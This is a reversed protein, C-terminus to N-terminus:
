PMQGGESRPHCSSHLVQDFKFNERNYDFLSKAALGVGALLEMVRVASMKRVHIGESVYNKITKPLEWDQNNRVQNQLSM